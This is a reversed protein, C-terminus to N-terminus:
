LAEMYFDNLDTAIIETDLQRIMGGQLRYEVIEEIDKIIRIDNKSIGINYAPSPKALDFKKVFDWLLLVLQM